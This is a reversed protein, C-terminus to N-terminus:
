KTTNMVVYMRVHKGKGGILTIEVYKKYAGNNQKQAPTNSRPAFFKWFIPLPPPVLSVLSKM